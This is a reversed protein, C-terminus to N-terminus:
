VNAERCLEFCAEGLKTLERARAGRLNLESLLKLEEESASGEVFRYLAECANRSFVAALRYPDVGHRAAVTSVPVEPPPKFSRKAEILERPVTISVVRRGWGRVLLLAQGPKLRPLTGGDRDILKLTAPDTTAFYLQHKANALKSPVGEVSHGAAWVSVGYKRLEDCIKNVIEANGLQEVEDIALIGQWKGARASIYVAYLVTYIFALEAEGRGLQTVVVVRGRALPQFGYLAPSRLMPELRRKLAYCANREDERQARELKQVVRRYVEYLDRAGEVVERLIEMTPPKLVMEKEVGRKWLSELVGVLADFAREGLELPNVKVDVGARQVLYGYRELVAHEGTPDIVLVNWSEPVQALYYDLAVSKGSEPAGCLLLSNDSGREIQATYGDAIALQFSVGMLRRFRQAFGSGRRYGAGTLEETIKALELPTLERAFFRPAKLGRVRSALKGSSGPFTFAVTKLICGYNYASDRAARAEESERVRLTYGRVLVTHAKEYNVLWKGAEARRALVGGRPGLSQLAPFRPIPYPECPPIEPPEALEWLRWGVGEAYVRFLGASSRPLGIALGEGWNAIAFVKARSLLLPEIWVSSPAVEVGFWAVKM